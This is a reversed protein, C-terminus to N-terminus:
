RNEEICMGRKKLEAEEILTILDDCVELALPHNEKRLDEILEQQEEKTLKLIEQNLNQIEADIQEYTLQNIYYIDNEKVKTKAQKILKDLKKM